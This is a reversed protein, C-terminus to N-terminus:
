KRIFSVPMKKDYNGTITPHQSNATYGIVRASVFNYLEQITVIKNRNVDAEGKLGRILYHSFIGQRLGHDELSFEKAKSSMLLAIGGNTEEFEKYFDDLQKTYQGKSALRNMSGSHCADAYLVKHKALSKKMINKVDEHHLLNNYGDYDAPVFSGDVGHGSYYFVIVDNEDAQLFMQQMATIIKKQSAQEDILVRIQNDPLAGGEPSKLFAYIQYADDDTFKLSQMTTYTSVGVIVAWIKIEPNKDVVVVEKEIVNRSTLEQVITGHNWVAGLVKGSAYYMIGDKNPSHKDWGGVYKDGNAYYCTGKGNPYGDKFTGVWKSGDKYFYFGTTNNCYISNCDQMSSSNTPSTVIPETIKNQYKGDVWNGDFRKGNIDIYVGTGNKKNHEWYGSYNAGNQYIMKGFGSFEGALFNGIYKDGNSFSYSGHGESKDDRFEGIYIDGNSYLWKGKGHKRDQVFEGNYYGGSKYTMKGNGQRHNMKWDGTYFNGNTFYVTGFGHIKGKKFQGTYEAGSPYLYTGKGDYCDGTQCQAFSLQVILLVLCVTLVNKITRM